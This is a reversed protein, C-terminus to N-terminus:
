CGSRASAPASIRSRTSSRSSGRSRRSGAWTSCSRVTRAREPDGPAFLTTDVGCPIVAIRLFSAGYEGVLQARELDTAAIIRDAADVIAAEEGIRLAPERDATSRAVDNKLRGLTHFMQVLPVGWRERLALGVIGSLWYHAHVLDYDLGHTIRWADVGDAFEELHAWVRERAMPTEPGAPLHVVRVREGMEVVRPITPNQSRTFVDVEVGMRGLERGLERVYVNMGGSEKGGLAALPCTHVSLMAVRVTM